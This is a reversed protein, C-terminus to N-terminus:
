LQPAAPAPGYKDVLRRLDEQSPQLTLSARWEELGRDRLDTRTRDLIFQAVHAVGMGRYAAASQPNLSLARTYAEEARPFDRLYFYCAGTKEWPTSDTPAQAAAETFAQLAANWRQQRIYASGLCLLLDPQSPSQELSAEYAQIAESLSGQSDKITGLNAYAMASSPDIELAARCYQEAEASYGLQFYCASVNLHSDFDSPSLVIARLYVEVAKVLYERVTEAVEAAAALAQYTVGLNYHAKFAFPNTRCANEYAGRALEWRGQWRHIDGITTHAISLEPDIKVAKGLEALAMEVDGADLLIKGKVFHDIAAERTPPEGCGGVLLWVGLVWAIATATRSM